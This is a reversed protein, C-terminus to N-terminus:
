ADLEGPDLGTLVQWISNLEEPDLCRDPDQVFLLGHDDSVVGAIRNGHPFIETLPHLFSEDISRVPEVADGVLLMDLGASQIQVLCDTPIMLRDPQFFRRRLSIVPLYSGHLDLCGLMVAPAAPVPQCAAAALVRQVIRVPLGIRLEAVRVVLINIM